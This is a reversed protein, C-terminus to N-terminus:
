CEEAPNGEQLCIIKAKTNLHDSVTFSGFLMGFFVIFLICFILMQKTDEGMNM